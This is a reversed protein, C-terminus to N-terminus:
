EGTEESLDVNSKLTLLGETAYNMANEFEPLFSSLSINLNNFSLSVWLPNKETLPEDDNEYIVMTNPPVTLDGGTNAAEDWGESDYTTNYLPLGDNGGYSYTAGDRGYNWVLGNYIERYLTSLEVMQDETIDYDSDKISDDDEAAEKTRTVDVTVLFDSLDRTRKGNGYAYENFSFYEDDLIYDRLYGALKTSDLNAPDYFLVVTYKYDTDSVREVLEDYDISKKNLYKNNVATQDTEATAARVIFPISFVIGFVILVVLIVQIWATQKFWLWARQFWNAVPNRSLGGSEKTKTKEKM